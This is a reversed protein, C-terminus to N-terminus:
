SRVFFERVRDLIREAADIEAQDKIGTLQSELSVCSPEATQQDSVQRSQGSVVGPRAPFGYYDVSNNAPQESEEGFSVPAGDSPPAKFGPTANTLLRSPLVVSDMSEVVFRSRDEDLGELVLHVVLVDLENTAIGDADPRQPQLNYHRSRRIPVPARVRDLSLQIDIAWTM